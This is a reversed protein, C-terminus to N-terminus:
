ASRRASIGERPGRIANM